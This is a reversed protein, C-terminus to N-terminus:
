EIIHNVGSKYPLDGDGCKDCRIDSRGTELYRALAQTLRDVRAKGCEAESSPRRQQGM